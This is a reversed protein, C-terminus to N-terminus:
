TLPLNPTSPNFELLTLQCDNMYKKEEDSMSDLLKNKLAEKSSYKAWPIFLETWLYTYDAESSQTKLIIKSSTMLINRIIGPDIDCLLFGLKFFERRLLTTIFHDINFSTSLVSQGQIAFFKGKLGIKEPLDSFKPEKVNNPNNLHDKLKLFKPISYQRLLKLKNNFDDRLDSRNYLWDYYDELSKNVPYLKRTLRKRGEPHLNNFQPLYEKIEEHNQKQNQLIKVQIERIIKVGKRKFWVILFDNILRVYFKEDKETMSAFHLYLNGLPIVTKTGEIVSIPRVVICYNPYQKFCLEEHLINAYYQLYEQIKNEKLNVEIVEAFKSREQQNEVSSPEQEWTPIQLPFQFDVNHSKLLIYTSRRYWDLYESVSYGFNSIVKNVIKKYLILLDKSEEKSCTSYLYTEGIADLDSLTVMELLCFVLDKKGPFYNDILATFDRGERQKEWPILIEYDDIQKFEFNM